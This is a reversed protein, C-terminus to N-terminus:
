QLPQNGSIPGNTQGGTPPPSVLQHIQWVGNKAGEGLARMVGPYNHLLIALRSATAPDALAKHAAIGALAGISSGALHNGTVASGGVMGSLAWMLTKGLSSPNSKVAQELADQLDIAHHMQMNMGAVAPVKENVAQMLGQALLKKANKTAAPLPSDKDNYTADSLESYLRKKLIHAENVTPPDNLWKRVQPEIEDLVGQQYRQSSALENKGAAQLENFIPQLVTRLNVKQQGATTNAPQGAVTLGPQPNVAQNLADEVGKNLDGLITGQTKVDGLRRLSAKSGVPLAEQIGLKAAAEQDPLSMTKPLHLSTQYYPLSENSFYKGLAGLGQAISEGGAGTAAGGLTAGVDGHSQIASLLAGLGGQAAISAAPGAARTANSLMGSPVAYEMLKELVGGTKAELNQPTSADIGGNGEGYHTGPSFLKQIADAPLGPAAKRILQYVDDLSHAASAGAGAFLDAMPGYSTPTSKQGRLAKAQEMFAQAQEPTSGDPIQITEGTELRLTAM